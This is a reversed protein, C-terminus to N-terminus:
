RVLKGVTLTYADLVSENVSSVEITFENAELEAEIKWANSDAEAFFLEEGDTGPGERLVLHPEFGAAANPAVVIVVEADEDLTFSYFQTFYAESLEDVACDPILTDSKESEIEVTGHCRESEGELLLYYLIPVLRKGDSQASAAIFLSLAFFFLIGARMKPYYNRVMNELLSQQVNLLIATRNEDAMKM